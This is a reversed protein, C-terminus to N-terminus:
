LDYLQKRAISAPTKGTRRKFMKSFNSVDEYGSLRAADNVSCGRLLLREAEELRIRILYDQISCGVTKKFIRSLYRRDLNLERAIQEVRIPHMYNSRIYNQVRHVHPCGIQADAFLHAYLSFLEGALLYEATSPQSSLHMMRGFLVEPLTLVPPLESFRASLAGDFGIWRYHWPDDPDAKYTTVEDPLIIFAQGAHVPHASGRAYLVGKGRLVYHILTYKRVAPGFSHGPACAEEGAILPNLDRLKRDTLLLNRRTM